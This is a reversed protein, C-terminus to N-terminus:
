HLLSGVYPTFLISRYIHLTLLYGTLVHLPTLRASSTQSLGTSYQSKSCLQRSPYAWSPHPLLLSGPSSFWILLTCPSSPTTLRYPSHPQLLPNRGTTHPHCVPPFTHPLKSSFLGRGPLLSSRTLVM